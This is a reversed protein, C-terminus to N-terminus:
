KSGKEDGGGGGSKAGAYDDGESDKGEAKSSIPQLETDEDNSDGGKASKSSGGRDESVGKSDSKLLLRQEAVPRMIRMLQIFTTYEVSSMLINVYHKAKADETTAERCRRMFEAQTMGIEDCFIELQTEFMDHFKQYIEYYELKHEESNTFSLANELFFSEFMTQFKDSAVFNVLQGIFKDDYNNGNFDGM